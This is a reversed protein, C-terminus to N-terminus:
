KVRDTYVIDNYAPPKECMPIDKPFAGPLSDEPSEKVLVEEKAMPSYRPYRWYVDMNEKDFRSEFGREQLRNVLIESVKVLIERDRGPFNDDQKYYQWCGYRGEWEKYVDFANFEKNIEDILKDQHKKLNYSIAKKFHADRLKEFKTKRDEREKLVEWAPPIRNNVTETSTNNGM